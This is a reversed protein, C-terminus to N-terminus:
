SSGKGPNPVREVTTTAPRRNAEGVTIFEGTRDDRGRVSSSVHGFGPKPVREVTTTNPRQRAERVPIFEGTRSDRGRLSAQGRSGRSGGGHRSGM